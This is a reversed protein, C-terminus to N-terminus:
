MICPAGGGIPPMSSRGPPDEFCSGPYGGFEKGITKLFVKLDNAIEILNLRGNKLEVPPGFSRKALFPEECVPLSEELGLEPHYRSGGLSITIIGQNETSHLRCGHVIDRVPTLVEFSAGSAEIRQKLASISDNRPTPSPLLLPVESPILAECPGSRYPRRRRDTKRIARSPTYYSGSGDSEESSPIEHTSRHQHRRSPRPRRMGSENFTVTSPAFSRANSTQARHHEVSDSQETESSGTVESEAKDWDSSGASNEVDQQKDSQKSQYIESPPFTNARPLSPRRSISM